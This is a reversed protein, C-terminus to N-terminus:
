GNSNNSMQNKIEDCRRVVEAVALITRDNISAIREDTTELLRERESILHDLVKEHPGDLWPEFKRCTYCAIPALEGCFGFEGCNGMPKMKNDFRPDCIRSSPDKARTAESENKIIMGSFAQALPALQMSVAKDIREVIQPTAQVYVGANQTDSHGLVEAIILEGYGEKALNTGLTRRFRTPTIHLQKGTRESIIKLRDLVNKLSIRISKATQHFEYGKPENRRSRKAPFLPALSEENILKSYNNRVENSQQLLKEGVQSILSKKAFVSRGLQERKKAQPLNLFYLTNGDKSQIFEVDCVKLSAIQVPRPALAIFIWVLVFEELTIEGTEYASQNAEYIAEFEMSSFPGEKLDMTLVAKGKINGKIRLQKLLSIADDSVGAYGLKQWKKLFGSLSGLYWENNNSLIARYNILDNANVINKIKISNSFHQFRDFMNMLHNASRNEAYWILTKKISFIVETSIKLSLFDLCITHTNDRYSWVDKRPDFKVGSRTTVSSPLDQSETNLPLFKTIDNM